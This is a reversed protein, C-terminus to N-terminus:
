IFYKWLGSWNIFRRDIVWIIHCVHFLNHIKYIYTYVFLHICLLYAHLLHLFMLEKYHKGSQMVLPLLCPHSLLPFDNKIMSQMCSNVGRNSEMNM